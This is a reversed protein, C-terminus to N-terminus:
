GEHAKKGYVQEYAQCHPCYKTEVKKVFWFLFGRQKNRAHRCVPCKDRCFEAMRRQKESIMLVDPM